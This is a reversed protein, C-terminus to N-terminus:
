FLVVVVKTFPFGEGHGQFPAGCVGDSTKIWATAGGDLQPLPSESRPSLLERAGRSRLEREGPGTGPHGQDRCLRCLGLQKVCRVNLYVDGQRRSLVRALPLM